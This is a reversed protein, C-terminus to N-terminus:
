LLQPLLANFFVIGYDDAPDLKYPAILRPRLEALGRRPAFVFAGALLMTLLCRACCYQITPQHKRCRVPNCSNADQMFSLLLILTYLVTLTRVADYALGWM